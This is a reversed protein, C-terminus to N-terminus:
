RGASPEHDSSIELERLHRGLRCGEVTRAGRDHRGATVDPNVVACNGATSGVASDTPPVVSVWSSLTRPKV